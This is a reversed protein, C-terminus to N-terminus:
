NLRLAPALSRGMILRARRHRTRVTATTLRLLQATELVSRDELDRLRIIVQYKEPLRALTRHVLGARECRECEKLPSASQDAVQLRALTLQDVVEFPSNTRKRYWLLVENIAIQLLWTRFSAEFRFQRLQTFAKLIAQQVIDESESDNRMRARVTRILASRHPELLTGFLEKHSDLIQRILAAEQNTQRGRPPPFMRPISAITQSVSAMM